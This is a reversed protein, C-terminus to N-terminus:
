NTVFKGIRRRLDIRIKGSPAAERGRVKYVTITRQSPAPTTGRPTLGGPSDAAPSVFIREWRDPHAKLTEWLLTEYAHVPRRSVDVIVAGVGVSDLYSMLEKPTHMLMNQRRGGWSGEAIVKSARLVIHGPRKERMAVEAIFSGEGRSDSSILLVADRLDARALVETAVVSHGTGRKAPATASGWGALLVAPTAVAALRWRGTLRGLPTRHMAYVAGAALFIYLAPILSVAYRLDYVFAPVLFRILSQSLLLCFALLGCSAWRRRGESGLLIAAGLAMLPLLYGTFRLLLEGTMRGINAMATVSMHKPSVIGGMPVTAEGKASPALLYWPACLAGVILVPLWFAFRGLLRWRGTLLISVPPVLALVIGTGKTLIAGSALLGFLAARRWSATDLFWVWAMSAWVVLLAVLLDSMVKHAGDRVAPHTLMLLGCLWAAGLSVHKRLIAFLTAGFAAALTAMLLMLSIRSVGFVLTWAAQVVYFLPPWHGLAVKPYHLYYNEAFAMPSDPFGSAVYDRVMLGTVYHSPEDPHAAMESAFAGVRWQLAVTFALYSLLVAVLELRSGAPASRTVGEAHATAESSSLPAM